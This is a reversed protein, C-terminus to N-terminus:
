LLKRGKEEIDKIDERIKEKSKFIVRDIITSRIPDVGCFKLVAKKMMRHGPMQIFFIYLLKPANMTVILHGSKGKLLKDWWYSGKKRYKFAFGTQFTRDIFGKLLAPVTSWWDPYVFVLHDAWKILKQVKVLDPELKQNDKRLIPDFKLDILNVRRVQAGAKKAGRQYANALEGCLSKKRPHGLIVLIKKM